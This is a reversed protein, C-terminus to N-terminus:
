CAEMANDLINGYICILDPDSIDLGFPLHISTELTIGRKEIDEFKKDLYSAIVTNRCDALRIPPTKKASLEHVYQSASDFEGNDM